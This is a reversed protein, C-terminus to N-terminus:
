TSPWEPDVRGMKLLQMMAEALNPISAGRLLPVTQRLLPTTLPDPLRAPESQDLDLVYAVPVPDHPQVRLLGIGRAEILGGIHPMAEAMVHGQDMRLAVRDDAVLAAGLAMMRLALGSKGAGSSGVILLGQGGVAVCTAHICASDRNEAESLALSRMIDSRCGWLLAHM